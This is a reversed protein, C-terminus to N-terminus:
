QTVRAFEVWKSGDFIFSIVSRGNTSLTATGANLCNTAVFKVKAGSSGSVILNFRDGMFSTEVSGIKFTASDVVASRYITQWARPVLSLTDNGAADDVAAYRYTLLRGTNDANTTTGFRPATSQASAAFSVALCLTLIAIINKM